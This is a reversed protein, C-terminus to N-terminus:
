TVSTVLGNVVCIQSPTTVTGSFGTCKNGSSDYTYVGGGIGKFMLNQVTLTYSSAVCLNSGGIIVSSTMGIVKGLTFCGSICNSNGGIIGSNYFHHPLIKRGAAASSSYLTRFYNNSGGIIFSNCVTVECSYAANKVSFSPGYSMISNLCGGLIVSENASTLCSKYGGAVLGYRSNFANNFNGGVVYSRLSPTSYFFGPESQRYLTTSNSLGAIIGVNESGNINRSGGIIYSSYSTEFPGTGISNESGGIINRSCFSALNFRSNLNPNYAAGYKSAISNGVSGYGAIVNGGAAKSKACSTSINTGGLDASSFLSVINCHDPFRSLKQICTGIVVGGGVTEPAPSVKTRIIEVNSSSIIASKSVSVTTGVSGIISSNSTVVTYNGCYFQNSIYSEKSSLINSQSVFCDRGLIWIRSKYSSLISNQNACAYTLNTQTKNSNNFQKIQASNSSIISNGHPREGISTTADFTISAGSTSIVSSSDSDRLTNSEGAVISSHHTYFPNKSLNSSSSSINVTGEGRFGYSDQGSIVTNGSKSQNEYLKNKCGGIIVSQRPLSMYNDEGGIILSYRNSSYISSASFSSNQRVSFMGFVGFQNKAQSVYFYNSKISTGTGYAIAQTTISPFSTATTSITIGKEDETININSGAIISKFILKGSQTGTGLGAFVTAMSFIIDPLFNIIDM